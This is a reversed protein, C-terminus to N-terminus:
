RIETVAAGGPVGGEALKIPIGSDNSGGKKKEGEKELTVTSVKGRGSEVERKEEKIARGRQKEWRKGVEKM